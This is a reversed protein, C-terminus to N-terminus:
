DGITSGEDRLHYHGSNDTEDGNLTHGQISARLTKPEHHLLRQRDACPICIREDGRQLYIEGDGLRHYTTEGPNMLFCFMRESGVKLVVKWGPERVFLRPIVAERLPERDSISFRDLERGVKSQRQTTTEPSNPRSHSPDM